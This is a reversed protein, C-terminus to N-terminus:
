ILTIIGLILEMQTQNLAKKLTERMDKEMLFINKDKEMQFMTAGNEKM